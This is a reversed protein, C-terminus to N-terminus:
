RPQTPRSQPRPRLENNQVAAQDGLVTLVSPSVASQSEYGWASERGIGGMRPLLRDAIFLLENTLAPFLQSAIVPLNLANSIYVEGDGNQCARLVQAAAREASISVLPLSGGISFWAYEARHQGKFVANRHSGTRMLSPCVTTVLIGDKALETRLGTSLGVLAFKSVDYPLMHPVARKGGISAVNVIRGWGHDRMTPLVSMITNLAGWCNIDMAEHFDAPTMADLPGVEIIGAVNLLVDIRGWTQRVEEVAAEVQSRDRIDCTFSRVQDPRGRERLEAAAAAIDDASRAWIAVNAGADVLQRAIVLGLGRSGGSVIATKGHFNFWRSRRIAQQIGWYALAGGGAVCLLRDVTRM